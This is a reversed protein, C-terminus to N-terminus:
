TQLLQKGSLFKVSGEAMSLNSGDVLEPHKSVM